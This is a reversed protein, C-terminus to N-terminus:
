RTRQGLDDGRRFSGPELQQLQIFRAVETRQKALQGAICKAGIGLHVHVGQWIGVRAEIEHDVRVSQLMDFVRGVRQLFAGAYQLGPSRYTIGYWYNHTPQRAAASSHGLTVVSVWSFCSIIQDNVCLEASVEPSQRRLGSKRAHRDM